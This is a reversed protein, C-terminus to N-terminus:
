TTTYLYNEGRGGNTRLISSVGFYVNQFMDVSCIVYNGTCLVPTKENRQQRQEPRRTVTNTRVPSPKASRLQVTHSKKNSRSIQEDQAMESVQLQHTSYLETTNGIADYMVSLDIM